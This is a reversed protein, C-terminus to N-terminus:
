KEFGPLEKEKSVYYAATYECRFYPVPFERALGLNGSAKKMVYLDIVFLSCVASMANELTCQKYSDNIDHKVNNYAKWWELGEVQCEKEQNYNICWKDLPANGWYKTYIKTEGIKPYKDLIYISIDRINKISKLDYGSLVCLSKSMNEFEAGALLLIQKFADSYVKDHLLNEGDSGHYVYESTEELRKAISCLYEWHRIFEDKEM